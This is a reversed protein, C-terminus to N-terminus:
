LDLYYTKPGITIGIQNITIASCARLRAGYRQELQPVSSAIPDHVDNAPLADVFAFSTHFRAQEHYKRSHLRQKLVSDLETTLNRVHDWGQGIEAAWYSRKADESPLHTFQSFAIHLRQVSAFSDRRYAQLAEKVIPVLADCEHRRLLIPRTLSIHPENVQQVTNSLDQRALFRGCKRLIDMADSELPLPLFVFCLWDGQVPESRAIGLSTYVMRDTGQGSEDKTDAEKVAVHDEVKDASLGEEDDDSDDYPVLSM